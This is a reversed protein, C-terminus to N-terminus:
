LLGRPWSKVVQDQKGGIVPPPIGQYQLDNSDGAEEDQLISKGFHLLQGLTWEPLCDPEFILLFACTALSIFMTLM